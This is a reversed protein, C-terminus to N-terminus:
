YRWQVFTNSSSYLITPCYQERFFKQQHVEDNLSLAHTYKHASRFPCLSQRPAVQLPYILSQSSHDFLPQHAVHMSREKKQAQVLVNSITACLQQLAINRLMAFIMATTSSFGCLM